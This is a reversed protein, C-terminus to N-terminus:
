RAIASWAPAITVAKATRRWSTSPVVTHEIM